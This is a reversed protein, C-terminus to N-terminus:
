SPDREQIRVLTRGQEDCTTIGRDPITIQGIVDHRGSPGAPVLVNYTRLVPSTAMNLLTLVPTFSGPDHSGALARLAPAIFGAGAPRKVRPQM